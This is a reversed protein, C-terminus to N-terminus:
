FRETNYVTDLETWSSLRPHFPFQLMWTSPFLCWYFFLIYIMYKASKQISKTTSPQYAPLFKAQKSHPMYNSKTAEYEPIQDILNCDLFPNHPWPPHLNWSSFQFLFLLTKKQLFDLPSFYLSPKVQEFSLSSWNFLALILYFLFTLTKQLRNHNWEWPMRRRAPM